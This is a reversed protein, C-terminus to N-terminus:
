SCSCLWWGTLPIEDGESSTSVRLWYGSGKLMLNDKM